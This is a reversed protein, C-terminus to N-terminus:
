KDKKHKELNGYYELAEKPYDIKETALEHAKRHEMSPNERKIKMELLEQEILTRDHPKIDKGTMLRQWSQAIACDPDFRRYAKLDPDQLNQAAEQCQTKLFKEHGLADEIYSLEKPSM